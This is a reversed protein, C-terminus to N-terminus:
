SSCRACTHSHWGAAPAPSIVEVGRNETRISAVSPVFRNDSEPSDPSATPSATAAPPIQYPALVDPGCSATGLGRHAVDVCVVTDDSMVLESATAAAYLDQPRFRTASIHLPSAGSADIRVAEGSGTDSLEFWRCDTRLGFEQPVLYPSEDLAGSWPGYMASRNRDPYNEHPGRGVYRVTDFRGPLSFVVGVRPLDALAEPVDIVHRYELAGSALRHVEVHHEVLGEPDLRDLGVEQWRLLAQGGVRLRAALEPM